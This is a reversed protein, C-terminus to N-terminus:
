KAETVGEIIQLALSIEGKWAETSYDESIERWMTFVGKKIPKQNWNFEFKFVRRESTVVIGFLIYNDDQFFQAVYSTEIAISKVHLLYRIRRAYDYSSTRMTGTWAKIRDTKDLILPCVLYGEDTHGISGKEM